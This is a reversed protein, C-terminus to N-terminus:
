RTAIVAGVSAGVVLLTGAIQSLGMPQHLVMFGALAGISVTLVGLLWFAPQDVSPSTMPDVCNQTDACSGVRQFDGSSRAPTPYSLAM